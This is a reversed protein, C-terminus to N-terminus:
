NAKKLRDFMDAPLRSATASKNYDTAAAIESRIIRINKPADIGLKVRGDRTEIVTIKIDLDAFQLGEDQKRSVILVDSVRV